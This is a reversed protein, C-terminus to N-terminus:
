SAGLRELLADGVVQALRPKRGQCVVGSSEPGRMPDFVVSDVAEVALISLHHRQLGSWGLLTMKQAYFSRSARSSFSEEYIFTKEQRLSDRM